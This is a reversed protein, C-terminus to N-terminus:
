KEIAKFSMGRYWTTGSGPDYSQSGYNISSTYVHITKYGHSSDSQDACPHLVELWYFAHTKEDGEPMYQSDAGRIVRYIERAEYNTVPCLKIEYTHKGAIRKRIMEGTKVDRGAGEEEIDEHSPILEAVLETIDVDMHTPDPNGEKTFKLVVKPKPSNPM